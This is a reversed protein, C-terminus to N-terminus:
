DCSGPGTAQRVVGPVICSGDIVLFQIHIYSPCNHSFVIGNGGPCTPVTGATCASSQWVCNDNIEVVPPGLYNDAIRVFHPESVSYIRGMMSCNVTGGSQFKCFPSTPDGFLLDCNSGGEIANATLNSAPAGTVSGTAGNTGHLGGSSFAVSAIATHVSGVPCTGTAGFGSCDYNGQVTTSVNIMWPIYHYPVGSSTMGFIAYSAGASLYTMAGSQYTVWTGTGGGSMNQSQVAGATNLAWLAESDKTVSIQKVTGSLVTKANTSLNIKYLKTDTGIGWATTKDWVTIPGAWGTTGIFVWATAGPVLVLAASRGNLKQTMILTGDSGVDLNDGCAYPAVGSWATLATNAQFIGNTATGKTVSCWTDPRLAYIHKADLVAVQSATPLSTLTWHSAATNTSQSLTYVGGASNTGLTTGDVGTSMQKVLGSLQTFCNTKGVTCNPQNDTLYLSYSKNYHSQGLAPLVLTLSAILCMCKSWHNIMLLSWKVHFASLVIRM